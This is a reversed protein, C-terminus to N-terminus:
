PTFTKTVSAGEAFLGTAVVEVEYTIGATLVSVLRIQEDAERPVVGYKVPSPMGAFDVIQWVTERQASDQRHVSLWTADSGNWSFTPTVGAGVQLSSLTKEEINSLPNVNCSCLVSGLGAVTLAAIVQKTVRM